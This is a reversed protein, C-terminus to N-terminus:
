MYIVGLIMTKDDQEKEFSKNGSTIFRVWKEAREKEDVKNKRFSQLTDVLPNFFNPYPKNPDFFKGTKGDKQNFLWATNECGDSMLAFAFPKEGVVISEPVLVGSMKYAPIDWFDSPVFITQNAEEGKHPTILAKWEGNENKYGARGDGIHAALIGNPTHVVVIVTASLSKLDINQKKAFASMDDRVAKLTAFSIQSWETETPLENKKHWNRAIILNKLHFVSREAVIKSGIHSNQASGAGDSIVAIGWSGGLYEYKHSDQCPLNQSIHGNGVVSAGVVIWNEADVAFAPSPKSITTKTQPPPTVSTVIEPQSQSPQQQPKPQVQPEPTPNVLTVVPQTGQVASNDMKKSKKKKIFLLVVPLLIMFLVAIFAITKMIDLLKDIKANAEEAKKNVADIAAQNAQEVSDIRRNKETVNISLAEVSKQEAKQDNEIRKKEEEAKKKEDEQKASGTGKVKKKYLTVSIGQVDVIKEEYTLGNEKKSKSVFGQLLLSQTEIIEDLKGYLVGDTDDAKKVTKEVADPEAENKSIKWGKTDLLINWESQKKKYLTYEEGFGDQAKTEDYEFGELQEEKWNQQKVKIGFDSLAADMVYWETNTKKDGIKMTRKAITNIKHLKYDKHKQKLLNKSQYRGANNAATTDSFENQQAFISVCCIVFFM